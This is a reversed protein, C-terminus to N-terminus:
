TSRAPEGALNGAGCTSLASSTDCPPRRSMSRCTQWRSATTAHGPRDRRRRRCRTAGLEDRFTDVMEPPVRQDTEAFAFYLEGRVGALEHHPSDPEDTALPGPHIGAAAVFEDPLTSAVHLAFRAGLAIALASRRPWTPRGPGGRDGRLDGRHRRAREGADRKRGAGDPAGNGSRPLERAALAAMDVTIGDGSRYFLDPAVCYYGDAAFRRANVKWSSATAPADMYVVAVPYPGDGDPHVVFTKMEGDGTHSSDGEREDTKEEISRLSGAGGGRRAPTLPAVHVSCDRRNRSIRRDPVTRHAHLGGVPTM